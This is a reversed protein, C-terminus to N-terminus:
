LNQEIWKGLYDKGKYLASDHPDRWLGVVQYLLSEVEERDWSDKVKRITITNNDSIKLYDKYISMDSNSENNHPSCPLLVKGYLALKEYEVMVDTIINGKNYEEVFKQIFASSPEPLKIEIDALRDVDSYNNITLSKDTTAIIKKHHTQIFLFAPGWKYGLNGEKSECKLIRRNVLIWDGEEIKEDSLIYLHQPLMSGDIPDITKPKYNYSTDLHLIGSIRGLWICNPWTAKNSPLMVLKKKKFM